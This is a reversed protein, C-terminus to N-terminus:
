RHFGHHLLAIVGFAVGGSLVSSSLVSAVPSWAGRRSLVGMRRRPVLETAALSAYLWLIVVALALAGYPWLSAMVVIAPILLLMPLLESLRVWRVWRPVVFPRRDLRKAKTTERLGVLTARPQLGSQVLIPWVFRHGSSFGQRWVVFRVITIGEITEVRVVMRWPQTRFLWSVARQREIFCWSAASVEELRWSDSGTLVQQLVGIVEDPSGPVAHVEHTLGM